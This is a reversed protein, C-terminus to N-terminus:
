FLGFVYVLLAIILILVIINSFAPILFIGFL